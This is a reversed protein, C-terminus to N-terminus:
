NFDPDRVLYQEKIKYREDYYEKSIHNPNNEVNLNKISVGNNDNNIRLGVTKPIKTPNNIFITRSVDKEYCKEVENEDKYFGLIKGSKIKNICVNDIVFSKNTFLSDIGIAESYYAQINNMNTNYIRINDSTSVSIGRTASGNYGTLKMEAHDQIYIGCIGSGVYGTNIINKLTCNHVIANKIGDIRIGIIGKQVHFMQDGNFSLRCNAEYTPNFPYPKELGTLIEFSNKGESNKQEQQENTTNNIWNQFANDNTLRKVDMGQEDLFQKEKAVISQIFLVINFFKINNDDDKDIRPKINPWENKIDFINTKGDLTSLSLYEGNQENGLDNFEQFFSLVSGRPDVLIKLDIDSVAVLETSRSYINSIKCDKIYINNGEDEESLKDVFGNVAIGKKHFVFGYATADPIRVKKTEFEGNENEIEIKSTHMAFLKYWYGWDEDNENWKSIKDDDENVVVDHIFNIIEKLKENIETPTMSIEGFYYLTEKIKEDRGEIDIDELLKNIYPRLSIISSFPGKIPVDQRHKLSECNNVIFNIGKNISIPAVEHNEFIVDKVLINEASNGQIQHHSSLGLKGNKIVVNKAPTNSPFNAPGQNDFPSSGLTINSYFRQILNHLKGQKITHGNLDLTVGEDTQISIAAFWGIVFAFNNQMKQLKNTDTLDILPTEYFSSGEKISEPNFEIDEGLIYYGGQKIEYTGNDFDANTLTIKELNQNRNTDNTIFEALKNEMDNRNVKNDECQSNTNCSTSCTETSCTETPPCFEGSSENIFGSIPTQTPGDAIYFINDNLKLSVYKEMGEDYINISNFKSKNTLITGKPLKM